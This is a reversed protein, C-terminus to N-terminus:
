KTHGLIIRMEGTCRFLYRTLFMCKYFEGHLYRYLIRHVCWMLTWKCTFFQLFRAHNLICMEGWWAENGDVVGVVETAFTPCTRKKERKGCRLCLKEGLRAYQTPDQIRSSQFILHRIGHMYIYYLCLIHQKQIVTAAAWEPLQAKWISFFKCANTNKWTQQWISDNPTLGVSECVMRLQVGAETDKASDGAFLRPTFCCSVLTRYMTTSHSDKTQLRRTVRPHVQWFSWLILM